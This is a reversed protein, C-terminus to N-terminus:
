TYALSIYFAGAVYKFRESQGKMKSFIQCEWSLAGPYSAHCFDVKWFETCWYMQQKFENEKEWCPKEFNHVVTLDVLCCLVKINQIVWNELILCVHIKFNYKEWRIKLNTKIKKM